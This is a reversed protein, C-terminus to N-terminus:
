LSFDEAHLYIGQAGSGKHVAREDSIGAVTNRVTTSLALPGCVAIGTEGEADNLLSWLLPKFSPRGSILTACPLISDSRDSCGAPGASEESKTPVIGADDVVDICCCPGLSKDCQCGSAKGEDTAFSSITNDCTVFISFTTEIGATRLQQNAATLEDSIWHIWSINKVVWIFELARVPLTQTSARHALDLLISLTFTVGTSGSILVVTDFAAFDSHQGGYPGDIFAVYSKPPTEEETKSAASSKASKLIHNTFGRHGKLIFVLDNSHSSPASAITAPHSQGFGFAPISLLVYAGPAWSTVQKSAVRIRTVGGDMAELTARGPRVNNYFYRLSRVVRDLFWLVIPIYIYVRSYLAPLHMMVAIIFGFFTVLHQVVFFEYAFHRFPALTSLNLWLLIAYAAIGTPPCSDTSWELKQLGYEDWGYSQTGFHITALLLLMRAVWRHLVNLRAYSAGTLLGILNYKGALLILLPVQAVALWAARVGLATYHQGGPVDNNAFELVLVFALYALLLLITGLPPVKFWAPSSVPSIRPYAIERGLATVTAISRMVINKPRASHVQKKAAMRIRLKLTMVWIINFIAAIGIVVVIGYWFARAYANGVVQFESDDLILQLFDFAQTENSFDVGSDNLPTSSGGMSMDM